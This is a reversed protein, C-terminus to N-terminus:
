LLWRFMERFGLWWKRQTLHYWFICLLHVNMFHILKNVLPLLLITLHLNLITLFIDLLHIILLRILKLLHKRSKVTPSIFLHFRWDLAKWIIIYNLIRSFLWYLQWAWFLSLPFFLPEIIFDIDFLGTRFELQVSPSWYNFHFLLLNVLL